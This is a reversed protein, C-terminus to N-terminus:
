GGLLTVAGPLVEVHVETVLGHLDGDLHLPTPAAWRVTVRQGAQHHVAAHGLHRGRLVRCMLGLLQARGVPGSTLVNARGDCADSQPSIQFGGGYRSGNMVAVLASPGQYLTHSDVQVQVRSLKLERLTVLASWAYRAFGRLRRPARAMNLTVQADFGMGLGNLLVHRQGGGEGRTVTVSLADVQRPASTLCALAGVFDGPRLGLMGAFDNGTGLPVIALLRGTGVLAPLLAAVTGDGGAALLPVGPPLAQVRRLAQSAGPAEILEHSLGCSGLAQALRPWERRALGGGAQPNLVVAM